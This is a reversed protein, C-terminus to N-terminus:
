QSHPFVVLFIVLFILPFMGLSVSVDYTIM